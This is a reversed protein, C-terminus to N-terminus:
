KKKNNKKKKKKKSSQPTQEKTTKEPTTEMAAAAARVSSVTEDIESMLKASVGKVANSESGELDEVHKKVTGLGEALELSGAMVVYPLFKELSKLVVRVRKAKRMEPDQLTKELADLLSQGGEQISTMARKELESSEPNPKSSLLLALLRYGEAKLFHSRAEQTAAVM